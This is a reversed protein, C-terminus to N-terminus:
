WKKFGFYWAYVVGLVPAVVVMLVPVVGGVGQRLYSVGTVVVAITLVIAIATFVWRQPSKTSWPRVASEIDSGSAM